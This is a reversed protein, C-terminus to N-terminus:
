LAAEVTKGVHLDPDAYVTYLIGLPNKRERLMRWKADHIAQGLTLGNLLGRYFCQSFEAAFNDPVNTETGIFGRNHNEELFFRPFSTVAMPNIVSTGCANLFILPGAPPRQKNTPLAFAAQLDSITVDNGDSLRLVSNSSVMEDIECHCIFHQIQDIPTRMEGDFRQDAAYQLYDAMAKAFERGPLKGVPWPGDVDIYSENRKFFGIEADVGRLGRYVFCRVPLKPDNQLVLDQSVSINRFERRIIASFGPFRRAAAELTAQDDTIPWEALEFLPLFDLPIFRSLEAAATIM